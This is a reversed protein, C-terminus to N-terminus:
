KHLKRPSFFDNRKKIIFINQTYTLQNRLLKRWLKAIFRLVSGVEQRDGKEEMSKKGLGLEWLENRVCHRYPKCTCTNLSCSPM